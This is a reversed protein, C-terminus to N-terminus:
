GVFVVDLGLAIGARRQQEDGTIFPVAHDALDRLVLASALHVADLTRVARNTTVQEARTLVTSDAEVLTWHERDERIAATLRQFESRSLRQEMRRRRLASALEVPAIASSIVAHARLLRLAEATGAELVYSRALISADFYAHNGPM